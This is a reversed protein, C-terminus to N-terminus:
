DDVDACERCIPPGLGDVEVGCDICRPTEDPDEISRLADLARDARRQSAVLEADIMGLVRHRCMEFAQGGLGMPQGADDLPFGSRTAAVQVRLAVLASRVDREIVANNEVAAAHEPDDVDCGDIDLFVPSSQPYSM